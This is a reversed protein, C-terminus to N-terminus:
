NASKADASLRWGDILQGHTNYFGFDLTTETATVIQAGWEANYRVSSGAVPSGFAYKKAGGLGNVFYVIGDRTVREYTHAHGSIVADAGWAALPWQM